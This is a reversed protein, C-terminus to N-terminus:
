ESLEGMRDASPLLTSVTLLAHAECVKDSDSRLAFFKKPTVARMSTKEIPYRLIEWLPLFLLLAAALSKSLIGLAAACFFPMVIEMVLFLWGNLTSKKESILHKGIHEGKALAKELAKSALQTEETKSQLAKKAIIYRYRRKSSSDTEPYIGAPDRMLIEEASFLKEEILDFDTEALKHLSRVANKLQKISKGSQNRVAKVAIDVLACTIALPLFRLEIGSVAGSEFYSIIGKEDPLSGNKCMEVCRAFLGPLVEPDKLMKEAYRCEEAANDACRELIYYNDSVCRATEEDLKTQRARVSCKFSRVADKMVRELSKDMSIEGKMQALTKNRFCLM